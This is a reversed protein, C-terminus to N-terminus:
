PVPICNLWKDYKYNHATQYPHDLYSDNAPKFFHLTPVDNHCTFTCFTEWHIFYNFGKNLLM